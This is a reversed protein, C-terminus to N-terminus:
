ADQPTRITIVKGMPTVKFEWFGRREQEQLPQGVEGQRTIHAHGGIQRIAQRLGDSNGEGGFSPRDLIIAHSQVGQRSLTLLDPIWDASNNATIIIAAAGRRAMRGLDQLAHTLDAEGNANILALARLIKWQQGQGRGAPVIQPKRGYAALGVARNQLLARAALSAALLVAHEETGNIGAGLQVATEMDLLLWIDGAADLDFQRVFLEDRRASTPWHIWRMPDNPQYDRVSAANVTAQWSRRRARVRGSSQGAPLPIPLNGHVPPHIIIEDSAPYRRAVIFIGFPDGSRIAWPGLRFQGRQQCVAAQRWTDVTNYGVSRVVSAQYGPVNSEDIVEVWLAPLGGANALTFEEQLRDGVAVWRFRSRREARLGRALVRAWLYAAGFLGGFGVLLTNWAQNPLLIAAILLFGLWVLVTRGGARLTIQPKPVATQRDMM